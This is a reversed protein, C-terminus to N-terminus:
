KWRGSLPEIPFQAKSLHLEKFISDRNVSKVDKKEAKEIQEGVDGFEKVINDHVGILVMEANDYDLLETPNAPVFSYDGLVM